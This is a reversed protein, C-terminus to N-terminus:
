NKETLPPLIVSSELSPSQTELRHATRFQGTRQDVPTRVAGWIRSLFAALRMWRPPRQEQDIVPKQFRTTDLGVAVWAPHRDRGMRARRRAGVLISRM